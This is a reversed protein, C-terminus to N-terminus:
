RAQSARNLIFRNAEAFEAYARDEAMIHNVFWDTLFALLALEVRKGSSFDQIFGDLASRYSLHMQEHRTAGPYGIAQMYEEETQFHYFSYDNLKMLVVRIANERNSEHLAEDLENLIEAFQRHHTDLEEVGVEVSENWRILAM